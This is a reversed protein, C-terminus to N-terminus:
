YSLNEYDCFLKHIVFQQQLLKEEKENKYKLLTQKVEKNCFIIAQNTKHLSTYKVIKDITQRMKVKAFSHAVNFAEGYVTKNRTTNVIFDFGSKNGMNLKITNPIIEPIKGNFMLRAGELLVLDSAIRNLAEFVSLNKYPGIEKPQRKVLQIQEIIASSAPLSFKNNVICNLYLLRAKSFEQKTLPTNFKDYLIFKDSAKM